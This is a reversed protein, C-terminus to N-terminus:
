EAEPMALTERVWAWAAVADPCIAFDFHEGEGEFYLGVDHGEDMRQTAQMESEAATILIQVPTAGDARLTREWAYCNGGTCIRAFGRATWYQEATQKM